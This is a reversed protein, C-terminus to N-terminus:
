RCRNRRTLTHNRRLFKQARLEAVRHHTQLAALRVKLAGSRNLQAAQDLFSQTHAGIADENTSTRSASDGSISMASLAPDAPYTCSERSSPAHRPSWSKCEATAPPRSYKRSMRPASRPTRSKCQPANRARNARDAILDFLNAHQAAANLVAHNLHGRQKHTTFPLHHAHCQLQRVRVTPNTDTVM